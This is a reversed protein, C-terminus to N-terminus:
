SAAGPESARPILITEGISEDLTLDAGFVIEPNADLIRWWKRSDVYFYLALLDLRDDEKITYELVGTASGIRRPRFGKFGPASRDVGAFAQADKYRSKNAAM